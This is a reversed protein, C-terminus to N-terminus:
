EEEARVLRVTIEPSDQCTYGDPLTVTVPLTYTGARRCESLDVTLQISDQTLASLDAPLGNVQITVDESDAADLELGEQINAFHIQGPAFTYNVSEYSVIEMRVVIEREDENPIQIGDPLYQSIDVTQEVSGTLGDPNLAEAPIDLNLISRIDSQLGAITVTQPMYTISAVGYGDPAAENIDFSIGVEKTNLTTVTVEFPQDKETYTLYTDDMEDGNGDILKLTCTRVATGTIGAINVEAVVQQIEDVMSKPGTIEVVTQEPTLTGVELGESPENIYRTTVKFQETVSEEISVLVNSRSQEIREIAREVNANGGVYSVEISVMSDYRLDKQVDATVSFDSAQLRGAASTRAYVTLDVTDTGEVVRYVQGQDALIDANVIEVKINRFSIDTIPDDINVVILWLLVAAAVSLVKLLLNNLLKTKM